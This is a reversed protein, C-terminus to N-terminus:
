QTLVLSDAHATDAIGPELTTTTDLGFEQLMAIVNAMTEEQPIEIYKHIWVYGQINTNYATSYPTLTYIKNAYPNYSIFLIDSAGRDKYVYYYKHNLYQLIVLKNNRILSYIDGPSVDTSYCFARGSDDIISSNTIKKLEVTNVIPLLEEEIIVENESNLGITEKFWNEEYINYVLHYFKIGHIGLTDNIIGQSFSDITSIVGNVKLLLLKLNDPNNYVESIINALETFNKDCVWEENDMYFSVIYPIYERAISDKFNYITNNLKIKSLDAM